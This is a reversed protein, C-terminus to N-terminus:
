RRLLLNFRFGRFEADGTLVDTIGRDRMVIMSICDQLSLTSTIRQEYLSLGREFLDHSQSIVIVGEDRQLDRVLDLAQRRLMTQPRAALALMESLVGETTVITADSLNETARETARRWPDKPNLRGYWFVTDAFVETM